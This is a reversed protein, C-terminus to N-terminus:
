SKLFRISRWMLVFVPTQVKVYSICLGYASEVRYPSSLILRQYFSLHFPIPPTIQWVDINDRIWVLMMVVVTTQIQSGGIGMIRRGATIAVMTGVVCASVLDLLYVPHSTTMAPHGLSRTSHEATTLAAQQPNPQFLCWLHLLKQLM